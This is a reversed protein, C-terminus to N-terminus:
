KRSRIRFEFKKSPVRRKGSRCPSPLFEESIPESVTSLTPSAAVSLTPTRVPTLTATKAPMVTETTTVVQIRPPAPTDVLAVPDEPSAGPCDSTLISVHGEDFPLESLVSPFLQSGNALDLAEAKSICRMISAATHPPPIINVSIRGVHPDNPHAPHKLAIARHKKFIQYYVLM